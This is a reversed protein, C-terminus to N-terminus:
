QFDESATFKEDSVVINYKQNIFNIKTYDTKNERMIIASVNLTKKNFFITIKSLFKKMEKSKPVLEALITNKKEYLEVSFKDSKLIDGQMLGLMLDNIEKFMKNSKTDFKQVKKGDNIWMKSKNMVILYKYPNSYEWRLMNPKKFSFHGKSTIDDKLIDLHKYQMFDSEITNIKKSATNIKNAITQKNNVKRYGKPQSFAYTSSIILIVTIIKKM